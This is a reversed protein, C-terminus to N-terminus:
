RNAPFVYSGAISSSGSPAVNRHTSKARCGVRTATEQGPSLEARSQDDSLCGGGAPASGERLMATAAGTECARGGTTALVCITALYPTASARESDRRLLAAPDVMAVGTPAVVGAHALRRIPPERSRARRSESERKARTDRIHHPPQLQGRLRCKPALPQCPQEPDFSCSAVTMQRPHEDCLPFPNHIAYTGDPRIHGTLFSNIDARVADWGAHEAVRIVPGASSLAKVATTTDPYAFTCDVDAIHAVELGAGAFFEELADRESLAFPGPAGPPPPPMLAGLSRLHPALASIEAPSWVLALVRGGPATVRKAERLAESPDAAYQFSNFGTVVDFTQDPFPLSQLEGQVITAGPVRRRAYELMGPSADLGSVDAGRDAALRLARGAGCGVDLMRTGAGVGLADLAAAFAPEVYPEQLEAWDATNVSWLRGQLEATGAQTSTSM